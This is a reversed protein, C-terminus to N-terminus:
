GQYNSGNIRPFEQRAPLWLAENLYAAVIHSMALNWQKFAEGRPDKIRGPDLGDLPRMAEALPAVGARGQQWRPDRRIAEMQADTAGWTGLPGHEEFDGVLLDITAGCYKTMALIRPWDKAIARCAEDAWPGMYERGDGARVLDPRHGWFSHCYRSLLVARRGPPRRKLQAALDEANVSEVEMGPRFDGPLTVMSFINMAPEQLPGWAAVWVPDVVPPDAAVSGGPAPIAMLALLCTAFSLSRRWSTPRGKQDPIAEDM